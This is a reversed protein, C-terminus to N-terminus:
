EATVVILSADDQSNGKPLHTFRREEYEAHRFLGLVTGGDNLLIATGGRSVVPPCHGANEFRLILTEIDIDIM